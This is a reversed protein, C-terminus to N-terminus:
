RKKGDWGWTIYLSLNNPSYKNDEWSGRMNTARKLYRERREPDKHKTFDEYGMQGFNVWKNEIPNYIAYKKSNNKSPQLFANKGLYQFAKKQAIKPNSYKLLEESYEKMCTDCGGKMKILEKKILEYHELDKPDLESKGSIVEQLHEELHKLIKNLVIKVNGGKFPELNSKGKIIQKKISQEILNEPEIEEVLLPTKIKSIKKTPRYVPYSGEFKLPNIDEWEEKFWRKLPKEKNEEEEFEGGMRKYLKIYAGSRYASAKKYQQNVINKVYEYLEPNKVKM